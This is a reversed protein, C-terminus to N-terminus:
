VNLGRSVAETACATRCHLPNMVGDGKEDGGEEGEM